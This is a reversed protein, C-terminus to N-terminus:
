VAIKGRTRSYGSSERSSSKCNCPAVPWVVYQHNRWSQHLSTRRRNTQNGSEGLCTRVLYRPTQLLYTSTYHTSYATPIPLPLIAACLSCRGENM